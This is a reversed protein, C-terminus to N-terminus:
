RSRSRRTSSYPWAGGAPHSLSHNAFRSGYTRSGQELSKLQLTRQTFSFLTRSYFSGGRQGARTILLASGLGAEAGAPGRIAVSLGEGDPNRSKRERKRGNKRDRGAERGGEKDTKRLETQQAQFMKM